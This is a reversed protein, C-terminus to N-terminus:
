VDACVFLCFELRSEYQVRVSAAAVLSGKTPAVQDSSDIQAKNASSMSHRPRNKRRKEANRQTERRQLVVTDAKAFTTRFFFITDFRTAVIVIIVLCILWYFLPLVAVVFIVFLHVFLHVVLCM